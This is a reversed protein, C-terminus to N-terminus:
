YGYIQLHLAKPPGAALRFGQGIQNEITKNQAGSDMMVGDGNLRRGPVRRGDVFPSEELKAIATALKPRYPEKCQMSSSASGTSEGAPIPFPRGDVISQTAQGRKELRPISSTSVSQADSGHFGPLAVACPLLFRLKV